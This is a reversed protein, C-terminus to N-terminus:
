QAVKEYYAEQAPSDIVTKTSYEPVDSYRPANWQAVGDHHSCTGKGTACTPSYTGDNCLTCYSTIEQKYTTVSETHSKEAVAPHYVYTTYAISDVTCNATVVTGDCTPPAKKASEKIASSAPAAQITNQDTTQPSNHTTSGLAGFLLVGAAIIGILVPKKM